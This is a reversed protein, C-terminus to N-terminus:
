WRGGTNVEIIIYPKILGSSMAAVAGETARVDKTSNQWVNFGAGETWTTVLTASAESIVEDALIGYPDYKLHDSGVFKEGGTIASTMTGFYTSDSNVGFEVVPDENATSAGSWLMGMGIVRWRRFFSIELRKYQNATSLDIYSDGDNLIIIRNRGKVVKNAIGEVTQLDM